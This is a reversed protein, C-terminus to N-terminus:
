LVSILNDLEKRYVSESFNIYSGSYLSFGDLGKEKILMVQRSIIDGNKQWEFCGSGAFSDEAGCKYLALAPVLKVKSGECLSVWESLCEDFPHSENEFGFYIQPLIVDCYGEERCWLAVDAYHDNICVEAKGNPSVSFLKDEGYQKVASYIERLLMNVNERRWSSIDGEGGSSVYADYDTKDETAIGEPYFYDDIHIGGLAPYKEMLERVGDTILDRVEKRAPNFYYRDNVLFVNGKDETLWKKAQNNESLATIDASKSARYPNIWAHLRMGYSQAIGLTVSLFDFPLEDGQKECVTSSSPFLASPYVADGFPRVHFFVDTIGVKSFNEFMEKMFSCYEDKSGSKKMIEIYSIWVGRMLTSEDKIPTYNETLNEATTNNEGNQPVAGCASFLLTICIILATLRFRM